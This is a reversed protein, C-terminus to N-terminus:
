LPWALSFPATCVGNVWCLYVSHWPSDLPQPWSFLSGTRMASVHSHPFCFYFVDRSSTWCIFVFWVCCSCLRDRQPPSVPASVHSTAIQLFFAPIDKAHHPVLLSFHGSYLFSPSSVPASILATCLGPRRASTQIKDETYCYADVTNQALFYCSRVCKFPWIQSSYSSSVAHAWSHLMFARCNDLSSPVAVTTWSSQLPPHHSTARRHINKSALSMMSISQNQLTLSLLSADLHSLELIKARSVLYTTM